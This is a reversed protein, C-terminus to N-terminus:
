FMTEGFAEETELGFCLGTGCPSCPESSPFPICLYRLLSGRSVKVCPREGGGALLDGGVRPVLGRLIAGKYRRRGPRSWRFQLAPAQKARVYRRRRPSPAQKTRFLCCPRASGPRLRLLLCRVPLVFSTTSCSRPVSM